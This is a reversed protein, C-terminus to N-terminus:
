GAEGGSGLAAQLETARRGNPTDRWGNQMGNRADNVVRPAAHMVGEFAARIYGYQPGFGGREDSFGLRLALQGAKRGHQSSTAALEALGEVAAFMARNAEQVAERHEIYERLLERKAKAEAEERENALQRELERAAMHLRELETALTDRRKEARALKKLVDDGGGREAELSATAIEANAEAVAREAEATREALHDSMKALTV